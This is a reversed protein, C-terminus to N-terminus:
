LSAVFRIALIAVVAVVVIWLIQVAWAPPSWGFVRFAVLAIGVCAGVIVLWILLDVFSVPPFTLALLNM